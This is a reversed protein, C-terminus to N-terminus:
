RVNGGGKPDLPAGDDWGKRWADAEHTRNPERYEPPVARRQLGDLRAQRGREEATDLMGQTVKAAAAPQQPEGRDEQPPPEQTQPPAGPDVAAGDGDRAPEPEGEGAGAFQDLAERAGRPRPLSPRVPAPAISSLDPEGEDARRLLDDIRQPARPLLKYLRKIATKLRM